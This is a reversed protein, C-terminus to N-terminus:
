FEIVAKMVGESYNRVLEFAKQTQSFNFRHTLMGSIDYSKDTLGKLTKILMANQRRIHIITIEKRRGLDAPLQWYDFEPIGVLVLKGGPKLLHFANEFADQQGCCEFVVDLGYKEQDLIEDKIDSTFINGTYCADSLSAIKLREDIKDVVFVALTSVSKSAIHVSMGIPGYGLIGIKDGARIQAQQVAYVGITLPESLAAEILSLSDPIPYCNAAPM